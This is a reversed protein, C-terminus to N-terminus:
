KGFMKKIEAKTMRTTPFKTALEHDIAKGEKYMSAVADAFGYGSGDSWKVCQQLRKDYKKWLGNAVLHKVTKDFNSEVSDYYQEWMDGYDYTFQIAWEMYSVMLEALAEASPKLIKFDVVAKRCVSFRTKPERRKKPYFEERIISKYEELKEKEDPCAYYELYEKAEKRASYLELVMEIIEAKTMSQLLKKITTKSM